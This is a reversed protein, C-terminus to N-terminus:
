LEPLPKDAGQSTVLIDVASLKDRVDLPPSLKYKFTSRSTNGINVNVVTLQFLQM